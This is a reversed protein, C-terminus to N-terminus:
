EIPTLKLFGSPAYGLSNRDAFYWHQEYRNLFNQGILGKVGLLNLVKGQIVVAHLNTLRHSGVQVSALTVRKATERGCFGMVEIEPAGKLDIGLQKAYSEGIVMVDAGTDLLFPSPSRDNIRAPTLMVGLKGTLPLLDPDPPPSRRESLQLLKQQPHLYMNYNSLFDMGLVGALQAPVPNLGMGSINKVTARDVKLTPLPLVSVRVRDCDDGVVSYTLLKSPIPTGRLGLQQLVPDGIITASAGTDLLFNQQVSKQRSQVTVPLTFVQSDPPHTLPVKGTGTSQPLPVSVGLVQLLSVLRAEANARVSGDRNLIVVQMLCETSATQIKAFDLGLAQELICANVEQWMARATAKEMDATSPISRHVFATMAGERQALRWWEWGLRGGAGLGIALLVMALSLNKPKPINTNQM